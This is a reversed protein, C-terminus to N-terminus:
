KLVTVYESDKQLIHRLIWQSLFAVIEDVTNRQTTWKEMLKVTDLRLLYYSHEMCHEKYQDYSKSLMLDEEYRFHYEAYNKLKKIAEEIKDINDIEEEDMLLNVMEAGIQFLIQHQEDIEKIGLEYDEHWQFLM